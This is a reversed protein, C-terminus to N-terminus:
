RGQGQFWVTIVSNFGPNKNAYKLRAFRLYYQPVIIQMNGPSVTYQSEGFSDWSIGDPSMEARCIVPNPGTNAVLFTFMRLRSVDRVKSHRERDATPLDTEVFNRFRSISCPKKRKKGPGAVYFIDGDKEILYDKSTKKFGIM